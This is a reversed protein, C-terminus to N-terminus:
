KSDKGDHVKAVDRGLASFNPESVKRFVVVDSEIRAEEYLTRKPDTVIAYRSGASRKDAAFAYARANNKVKASYRRGDKGEYFVTRM